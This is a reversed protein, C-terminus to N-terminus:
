RPFKKRGFILDADPAGKPHHYKSRRERNLNVIAPRQIQALTDQYDEEELRENIDLTLQKVKEKEMREAEEQSRLNQALESDTPVTLNKYQQKNGKRLMLTFNVVPENQDPEMLQEYTKKNNNKIHIPVSIDALQPKVNEKMREQINDSVMKEFANQFDEDDQSLPKENQVDSIEDSDEIENDDTWEKTSGSKSSHHREREMFNPSSSLTSKSPDPSPSNLDHDEESSLLEWDETLEEGHIEMITELGEEQDQISMPKGIKAMFKVQLDYVAAKSEEFSTMLTINPRLASITDRFLYHISIPFQNDQTWMPHSFKFWYYNQFYVFFYDLRVKSLGHTFFQGCTELLVCVLRIRFLNDPPDIFSPSDHEFTVGLSILSYFVKFIDSSEVMRYNYLEGLYKVMAVRRQNMKLLNIEIGLRIDELVGDVVQAGVFEQHDVLGALLNALTKIHYYKVNFANTLCKIAYASVLPEDWPLARMQNLVQDEKEHQMLDQYLIHRIFQYLPPREKIKLLSTEPPNVHYFANEIMTVYRSDLAMVAKKRMMQELYIKTRQHTDPNRFFYRGCSELFNCAMEIHHHTFDHLLVKLCYLGEIKSYLNFKVLEGIFRIVKIKSEINIQDKKRIHYKFDYKLLYSLDQSLEPMIPNLIAVLRSYFPLLDLRTRPVGFLIKVLKKRHHKTNHNMLFEIAANDIMERNVCNPLHSLFADLLIKSSINSNNETDDIDEVETTPISEYDKTSEEELEDEKLDEDLKEETMSTEHPTSEKPIKFNPLFEQINPFDQYFRQTEEDEWLNSTATGEETESNAITDQSRNIHDEPVTPLTEDLAEAFSNTGNTLRQLSAALVEGKEKRETSLEGKTQLIRRNQREFAQVEGYEKHLHKCLSTYYDKLLGRVNKQKEPPLATSRPVPIGYKDSLLRITRPVLGAYDEGCHKCFSLIININNHEEKDLTTLMTLVNGLLPLAEKYPFIGTTVLDGYFRLDVRLKSPNAIKEDKKLTLTKVWHELLVKSFEHYTCHLESCLSVAAPVDTLKLKTDVLAVAVESIYKSLNLSTMDKILSDLQTATFNRVKRVYATNKKLSSDLKGLTTEDPRQATQNKLRLEMKSSIRLEAEKVYNLLVKEETSDSDSDDIIKDLVATEAYTTSVELDEAIEKGTTTNINLSEKSLGPLTNINEELITSNGNGEGNEDMEHVRLNFKDDTM